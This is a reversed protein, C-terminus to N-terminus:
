TKLLILCKGLYIFAGEVITKNFILGVAEQTQWVFYFLFEFVFDAFVGGRKKKKRRALYNM